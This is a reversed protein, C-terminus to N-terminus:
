FLFILGLLFIQHSSEYLHSLSNQHTPLGGSLLPSSLHLALYDESQGVDDGEAEDGGQQWINIYFFLFYQSAMVMVMVMLWGGSLHVFGGHYRELQEM